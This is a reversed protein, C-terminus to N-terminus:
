IQELGMGLQTIMLPFWILLTAVLPSLSTFSIFVFLVLLSPFMFFLTSASFLCSVVSPPNDDRYEPVTHPVVSVGKLIKKLCELVEEKTLELALVM